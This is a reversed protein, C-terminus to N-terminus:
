GGADFVDNYKNKVYNLFMFFMIVVTFGRYFMYLYHLPHSSQYLWEFTYETEEVLVFREDFLNFEIAPVTISPIEPSLNILQNIFTIFLDTVQYLVGFHETLWIDAKDMFSEFYGDEPIFLSKLGEVIGDKLDIFFQGIKDGLESIKNGIEEFFGKVNSIIDEFGGVLKDRLEKLWDVISEILGKQHTEEDIITLDGLFYPSNSSTNRM